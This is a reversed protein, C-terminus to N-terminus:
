SNVTGATTVAIPLELTFISGMGDGDSHAKLTGGLEKAALACSHLGFGHGDKKTTFGHMFIRLMNEAPIGIGNDAVSIKIRDGESAIRVSIQKRDKESQACAHEANRVLNVLIQLVKHKDLRASAATDYDRLVEIKHRALGGANLRIADELLEALNITEQVGGVKAYNQQMAVIEKVHELHKKLQDMKALLGAHESALHGSLEVIYGPLLKGKEDATIYEALCSSNLRILEAAKTLNQIKSKRLTETICNASVNVSNLVNGVNHLIGTAVEAMGAM